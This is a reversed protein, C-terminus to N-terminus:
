GMLGAEGIANVMSGRSTSVTAAGVFMATTLYQPFSFEASFVGMLEDTDRVSSWTPGEWRINM